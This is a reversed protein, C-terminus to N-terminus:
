KNATSVSEAISSVVDDIAIKLIDLAAKEENGFRYHGRKKSFFEEEGITVLLFVEVHKESGLRDADFINAITAALDVKTDRLPDGTSFNRQLESPSREIVEVNLQKLVISKGLLKQGIVKYLKERLLRPGNPELLDDGLTLTIVKADRSRSTVRQEQPRDDILTLLDVKQQNTPKEPQSSHLPGSPIILVLLASIVLIRKVKM